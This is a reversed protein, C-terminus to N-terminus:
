VTWDGSAGGSKALLRVGEIVMGRDAAKLMDYLTLCAVSVATLPSATFNVGSANPGVPVSSTAPALTYGYIQTGVVYTAASLGVLTYTGDSDTYAERYSTGTLGNHVRVDKLPQGGVTITGAIRFTGPSGVTVIVSNSATGGKMDSFTFTLTKGDASVSITFAIDTPHGALAISAIPVDYKRGNYDILTFAHLIWNLKPMKSDLVM